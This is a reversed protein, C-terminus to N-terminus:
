DNVAVNILTQVIEGDENITARYLLSDSSGIFYVEDGIIDYTFNTNTMTTSNLATAERNIDGEAFDVKYLISNATYYHISGIVKFPVWTTTYLLKESVLENANYSVYTVFNSKLVLLGNEYNYFSAESTELLRRVSGNEYVFVGAYAKSAGTATFYLKGDVARYLTYVIDDMGEVATDGSLITTLEEGPKYSCIRNFNEATEDGQANKYNVTQLAFITNESVYVSSIDDAIEEVAKNETINVCQLKSDLLYAAYLNGDNELFNVAMTNASATHHIKVDSGDLKASMIVLESNKVAGSNDKEVNPTTFYIREGKVYLGSAASNAQYVIKPVVIEYLDQKANDTLEDDNLKEIDSTKIRCIAGTVVNNYTNDATAASYGNIFYTYEGVIVVLGGNSSVTSNSPMSVPTFSNYNEGNCAMFTALLCVALLIFVVKKTM